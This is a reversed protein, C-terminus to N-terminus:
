MWEITGPPKPTTDYVMRNIGHVENIIRQTVRVLFEISLPSVDATMYASTDVSRMAAVWQYTREDGMVGVTKSNTLVVFSQGREYYLGEKHLEEMFIADADRLIDLRAPTIKDECRIALGPGPSPHRGWIERPLGLIQAIARVEDKFLERFPEILKLKMRKPLGGVNHHSKIGATPGGHPSTSEVVDPYLTGQVLFRVKKGQERGLKDAEETFVKIFERGIVKRKKEPDAVNKLKALFRSSADVYRFNVRQRRLTNVVQEPEGKRLLGNNVFVATFNKGVAREMLLAATFSDVGGSVAGIVLENKAKKRIENTAKEIFDPMAWKGTAMCINRVFYNIMRQGAYTHEVEPHFQVSVFKRRSDFMAAVISGSTSAIVSFGPPCKKVQDGHSMWVRGQPKLGQFITGDRDLFTAECPGYERSSKEVLGGLQSAMVQHGYCIGMVPIGLTFIAQNAKPANKKLVSEPGGTLIIGVPEWKLIEGIDANYPLIVSYARSKRVRNAILNTYQAGFDLVVITNDKRDNRSEAM